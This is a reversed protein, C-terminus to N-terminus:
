AARNVDGKMAFGVDFVSQYDAGGATREFISWCERGESAGGGPSAAPGRAFASRPRLLAIAGQRRGRM